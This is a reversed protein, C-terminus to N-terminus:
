IGEALNRNYLDFWDADENIDSDLLCLEIDSNSHFTQFASYKSRDYTRDTALLTTKRANRSTPYKFDNSEFHSEMYLSQNEYHKYFPSEIKIRFISVGSNELFSCLKFVNKVCEHLNSEHFIQSTMHETRLVTAERTLLNVSITKIGIKSSAEHIAENGTIHVEFIEKKSLNM